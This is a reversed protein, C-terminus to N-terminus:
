KAKGQMTRRNPTNSISDYVLDRFLRLRFFEVLRILVIRFSKKTAFKRLCMLAM